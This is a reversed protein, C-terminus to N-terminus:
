KPSPLYRSVVGCRVDFGLVGANGLHAPTQPPVRIVGPVVEHAPAHNHRQEAKRSECVFPVDPSHRQARHANSLVTQTGKRIEDSAFLSNYSYPTSPLNLSTYKADQPTSEERNCASFCAAIGAILMSTFLLNRKM